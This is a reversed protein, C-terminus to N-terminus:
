EFVGRLASFLFVFFDPDPRALRFPDVLLFEIGMSVIESGRGQYDKGMYPDLFVDPWARESPHYNIGTLDRLRQLEEGQTRRGLFKLSANLLEPATEQLRHGMEHVVTQLKGTTALFVKGERYYSRKGDFKDREPTRVIIDTSEALSRDVLSAFADIGNEALRKRDPGLAPDLM